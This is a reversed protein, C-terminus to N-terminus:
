RTREKLTKREFYKPDIQSYYIANSVVVHQFENMARNTKKPNKVAVLEFVCNIFCMPASLSIIQLEQGSLDCFFSLDSFEVIHALPGNTITVIKTNKGKKYVYEVAEIVETSYLLLDFVILLDDKDLNMVQQILPRRERIVPTAEYSLLRLGFTLFEALFSSYGWGMCFIRKASAIFETLTDFKKNDINNITKTIYEIDKKMVLDPLVHQNQRESLILKHTPYIIKRIYDILAGRLDQYGKFGLKRAFRILSADSVAIEESIEMLSSFTAKELNQFIFDAIKKHMDNLDNYHDRIIQIISRGDQEATHKAM